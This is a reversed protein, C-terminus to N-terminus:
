QAFVSVQLVLDINGLLSKILFGRAALVDESEIGLSLSISGGHSLLVLGISNGLGLLELHGLHLQSGPVGLSLSGNIVEIGLEGLNLLGLALDLGLDSLHGGVKVLGLNDVGGHLPLGLLEVLGDGLHLAFNVAQGKVKIDALLLGSISRGLQELDLRGVLLSDELKLLDSALVLSQGILDLVDHVLDGLSSAGDVLNVFDALPELGLLHLKLRSKLLGLGGQLLLLVLDQSALHLEGLDLGLNLASNSLLVLLKGHDALVLGLSEVGHLRGKLGLGLTLGLSESHLLLQLSVRTVESKSQLVGNGATGLGLVGDLLILELDSIGLDLNVGLGLSLGGSGVGLDGGVALGGGHLVAELLRASQKLSGVSLSTSGLLFQSVGVLVESVEGIDVLGNSSGSPLQLRLVVLELTIKILHGILGSQGLLLGGSSHNISSTKSILESALLLQGHGELLVLLQQLGLALVGAGTSVFGFDVGELSAPLGHDLHLSADTLQLRLKVSLASAVSIDQLVEALGLSGDLFEGESSVLVLLVVLAHLSQNVLELALDLGILLLNFFGLLNGGEVQGLVALNSSGQSVSRGGSISSFLLSSHPLSSNTRSGKGLYFGNFNSSVISSGSALCLVTFFSCDRSEIKSHSM